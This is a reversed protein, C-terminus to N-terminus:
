VVFPLVGVAADVLYEPGIKTDLESVILAIATLGVKPVLTTDLVDYTMPDVLVFDKLKDPLVNVIVHRPPDIWTGIVTVGLPPNVPSTGNVHETEAGDPATLIGVQV